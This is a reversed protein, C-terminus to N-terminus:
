GVARRLRRSRLREMRRRVNEEPISRSLRTLDKDEDPMMDYTCLGKHELERNCGFHVTRTMRRQGVTVVWQVIKTRGCGYHVREDVVIGGRRRSHLDEICSRDPTRPPRLPLAGSPFLAGSATPGAM